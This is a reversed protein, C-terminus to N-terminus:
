SGQDRFVWWWCNLISHNLESSLPGEGPLRRDGACGLVGYGSKIGLFCEWTMGLLLWWKHFNFHLPSLSSSCSRLLHHLPRQCTQLIRWCGTRWGILVSSGETMVGNIRNDGVHMVLRHIKCTDVYPSDGSKRCVRERRSIGPLTEIWWLVRASSASHAFCLEPM